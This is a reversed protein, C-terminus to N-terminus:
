PQQAAGDRRRGRLPARHADEGSGPPGGSATDNM